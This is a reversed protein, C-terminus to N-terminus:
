QGHTCAQKLEMTTRKLDAVDRKLTSVLKSMEQILEAQEKTLSELEEIRDTKSMLNLRMRLKVLTKRINM